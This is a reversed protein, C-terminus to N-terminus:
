WRQPTTRREVRAHRPVWRFRDGCKSHFVGRVTQYAPVIPLQQKNSILETEGPRYVRPYGIPCNRCLGTSHPPLPDQGSTVMDRIISRAQELVVRLTEQAAATHKIAIARHTGAQLVLGYPSTVGECREILQCYAAIRAYDQRHLPKSSNRKFVPIVVDYDRLIKWPKGKLGLEADFLAEKYVGIEFGSRRMEWWNVVEDEPSDPDPTRPQASMANARCRVLTIIPPVLNILAAIVVVLGIAGCFIFYWRVLLTLILTLVIVAAALVLWRYVVPCRQNLERNIESLDYLPLYDLNEVPSEEGSDDRGEGYAVVGARPCYELETMVHIGLKLPDSAQEATAFRHSQVRNEM